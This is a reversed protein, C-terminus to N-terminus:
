TPSCEATIATWGSPRVARAPASPAPPSTICGTTASRITLAATTYALTWRTGGKDYTGDVHFGIIDVYNGRNDWATNNVSKNPMVIRAGWKTTSIWYIRGGATGSATTKFGGEYTGPAVFVTTSAKAASAARALTRFPSASTGPNSDKGKPSVYIKYTTSPTAAQENQVPAGATLMPEDQGARLPNGGYGALAFDADSSPGSAPAAGQGEGQPEVPGEAAPASAVIGAFTPTSSAQQDPSAGGCGSLLIAISSCVLAGLSQQTATTVFKIM